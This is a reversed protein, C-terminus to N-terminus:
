VELLMYNHEQSSPEWYSLLVPLSVKQFSYLSPCFRLCQHWTTCRLSLDPLALDYTRGTGGVLNQSTPHGSKWLPAFTMQSLAKLGWCFEIPCLSLFNPLFKGLFICSQGVKDEAFNLPCLSLFNPLFKGFFICSQTLWWRVCWYRLERSPRETLEDWAWRSQWLSMFSPGSLHRPMHAHGNLSGFAKLVPRIHDFM